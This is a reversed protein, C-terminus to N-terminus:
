QTSGNAGEGYGAAAAAAPPLYVRQGPSRLVCDSGRWGCYVQLVPLPPLPPPLGPQTGCGAVAKTASPSSRWTALSCGLGAAQCRGRSRALSAAATGGGGRGGGGERRGSRRWKASVGGM